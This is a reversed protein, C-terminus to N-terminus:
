WQAFPDSEKSELKSSGLVDQGQATPHYPNSNQEWYKQSVERYFTAEAVSMYPLLWLYGIGLTLISLLSWGIFSLYLYFLHEKYGKMMKKSLTIAENAGMEPYEAMLYPTLAYGFSAIIGPIILLLTWLLTYLTILLNMSFGRLVRPYESFIQRLSLAKGDVFDLNLRSYGILTMGSIIAIAIYCLIGFVYFPYLSSNVPPFFHGISDNYQFKEFYDIAALIYDGINGVGILSAIFGAGVAFKWKGKLAERAKSRLESASTM